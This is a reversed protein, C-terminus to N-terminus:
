WRLVVWRMPWMRYSHDRWWEGMIKKCHCCERIVTDWFLIGPEASSWANHIIKNWLERADIEKEYKPHKANVPYQQTYSKNGKVAQMFEDDIKVSVNAGTVKGSEMKADIFHESDRFFLRYLIYYVPINAVILIGVLPYNINM